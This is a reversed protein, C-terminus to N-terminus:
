FNFNYSVSPFTAGLVSLKYPRPIYYNAAPRQYFVSYANDRGFVNYLSFVLSDEVGPFVNGITLSLDM